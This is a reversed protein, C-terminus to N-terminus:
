SLVDRTTAENWVRVGADDLSAIVVYGSGARREIEEALAIHGTERLPGCVMSCTGVLALKGDYFLAVPRHFAAILTRLYDRDLTDPTAAATTSHIM